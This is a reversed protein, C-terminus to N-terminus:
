LKRIKKPRPTTTWSVPTSDTISVVDMGGMTLGKISSMRGPGLGRVTVRVMQYGKEVGKKALSIATAQAAINTGERTNKFGERGCSHITVPTGQANCLSIITNNPTAKINCIPLDAFRIGNFLRNGTNEDPFLTEKNLNPDIELSKEGKTGEDVHPVFRVRTEKGDRRMLAPSVHFHRRTPDTSVWWKGPGNELLSRGFCSVIATRALRPTFSGSFTPLIIRTLSKSAM